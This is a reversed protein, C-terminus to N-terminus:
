LLPDHPAVPEMARRQHQKGVLTVKLRDAGRDREPKFAGGGWALKIHHIDLKRQRWAMKIVVETLLKHRWKM